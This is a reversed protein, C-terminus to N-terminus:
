VRGETVNDRFRLAMVPLPKRRCRIAAYLPARVCTSPFPPASHSNCSLVLPISRNDGVRHGRRPRVELRAFALNGGVGHAVHPVECLARPEEQEDFENRHEHADGGPREEEREVHDCIEPLAMAQHEDQQGGDADDGGPEVPVIAELRAPAVVEDDVAREGRAEDVGAHGDEREQAGDGGVQRAAGGTTLPCRHLHAAGDRAVHAMGRVQAPVVM